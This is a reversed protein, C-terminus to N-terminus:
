ALTDAYDNIPQMISELNVTYDNIVDWGDNGYIFRVWGVRKGTLPLVVLYEDDVQFMEDLIVTRDTTRKSPRYAESDYVVLAYGASLLADVTRTAIDREVAIRQCSACLRVPESRERHAYCTARIM